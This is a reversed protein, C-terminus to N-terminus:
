VITLEGDEPGLYEVLRGSRNACEPKVQGTHFFRVPAAAKRLNIVTPTGAFLDDPKQANRNVIVDATVIDNLRLASVVAKSALDVPEHAEVLLCNSSDNAPESGTVVRMNRDLTQIRFDLAELILPAPQLVRAIVSVRITQDEYFAPVPNAVFEIQSADFAATAPKQGSLACDPCRIDGPRITSPQAIAPAAVLLVLLGAPLIRRM